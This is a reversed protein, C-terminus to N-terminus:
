AQGRPWVSGVTKDGWGKSEGFSLFPHLRATAQAQSKLGEDKLWHWGPLARLPFPVKLTAQLLNNIMGPFPFRFPWKKLILFKCFLATAAAAALNCWNHGVRQLEGPEETWPIKWALTSSHPAMAKESIFSYHLEYWNQTRKMLINNLWSTVWITHRSTKSIVLRVCNKARLLDWNPVWM